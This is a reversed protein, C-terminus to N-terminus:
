SPCAGLDDPIRLAIPQSIQVFSATSKVIRGVIREDGDMFYSLHRLAEAIQREVQQLNLGTIRTIDAYSAGDIGKALVIERTRRPFASIACALKALLGRDVPKAMDDSGYHIPCYSARLARAKLHEASDTM